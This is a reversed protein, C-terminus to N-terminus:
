YLGIGLERCYSKQVMREEFLTGGLCRQLRREADSSWHDAQPKPLRSTSDFGAPIDCRHESKKCVMHM